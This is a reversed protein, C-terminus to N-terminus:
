DGLQAWDSAHILPFLNDESEVATLWDEPLQENNNIAHMLQWFRNLHRHIRERALETTTGARLIFSWDSSQALLLERAAQQLLRIQSEKSVGLTCRKIM